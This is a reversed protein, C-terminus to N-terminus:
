KREATPQSDVVSPNPATTLQQRYTELVLALISSFCEGMQFDRDVFPDRSNTSYNLVGFPRTEKKTEEESDGSITRQYIGVPLCLISRFHEFQPDVHKWGKHPPPTAEYCNKRYEFPWGIERDKYPVYVITHRQHAVAAPATEADPQAPLPIQLSPDYRANQSKWFLGINKKDPTELMLGGDVVKSGCLTHSTLELFFSIFNELRKTPDDIRDQGYMFKELRQLLSHMAAVFRIEQPSTTLKNGWQEWALALLTALIIVLVLADLVGIHHSTAIMRLESFERAFALIALLLTLWKSLHKRLRVQAKKKSLWAYYRTNQVLDFITKKLDARIKAGGIDGSGQNQNADFNESM